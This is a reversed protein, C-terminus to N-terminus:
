ALAEGDWQGKWLEKGDAELDGEANGGAAAKGGHGSKARRRELAYAGLLPVVNRSVRSERLLALPQPLWRLIMGREM